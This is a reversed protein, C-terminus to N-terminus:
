VADTAEQECEGCMVRMTTRGNVEFDYPDVVLRGPQGCGCTEDVLEGEIADDYREVEGGV